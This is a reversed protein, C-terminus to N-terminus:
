YVISVHKIINVSSKNVSSVKKIARYDLDTKSLLNNLNEMAKLKTTEKLQSEKLLMIM